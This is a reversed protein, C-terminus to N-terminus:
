NINNEFISLSSTQDLMLRFLNNHINKKNLVCQVLFINKVINLFFVTYGVKRWSGNCYTEINSYIGIPINVYGILCYLRKNNLNNFYIKSIMEQGCYCGKYFDIGQLVDLSLEQPFFKQFVPQEIIPIGFKMDCFLWYKKINPINNEVLIKNFHCIKKKKIILLFRIVPKCFYLIICDKFFVVTNLDNPVYPFYSLLISKSQQGVLGLFIYNHLEKIHVQSFVTYKRFEQMQINCISSRQIYFYDKKNHFLRLISNIRGQHNCNGCLIHTGFQLKLINATVHNQLYKKNDLGSVQIISWGTLLEFSNINNNFKSLYSSIM